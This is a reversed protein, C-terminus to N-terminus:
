IREDIWARIQNSVTVGNQKALREIDDFQADTLRIMVRKGAPETSKPRGAGPRKGGTNPRPGGWNNSKSM